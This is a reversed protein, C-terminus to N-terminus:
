PATSPAGAAAAQEAVRVNVAGRVRDALAAAKSIAFDRVLSSPVIGGIDVYTEYVVRTGTGHPALTWGGEISDADGALATWRITRASRDVKRRLTYNLEMVAVQAVFRVDVEDQREALIDLSKIDPFIKRFRHVDWVSELVVDPPADVDFTCRMGNVGHADRVEETHPAKLLPADPAPAAHVESFLSIGAVAALISLARM